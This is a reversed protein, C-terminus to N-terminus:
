SILKFKVCFVVFNDVRLYFFVELTQHKIKWNLLELPLRTIRFCCFFCPEFYKVIILFFGYFIMSCYLQLQSCSYTEAFHRQGFHDLILYYVQRSNEVKHYALFQICDTKCSCLHLHYLLQKTNPLNEGKSFWADGEQQDIAVITTKRVCLLLYITALWSQKKGM